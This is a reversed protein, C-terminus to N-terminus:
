IECYKYLVAAEREFKMALRDFHEDNMFSGCKPSILKNISSSLGYCFQFEEDEVWVTVSYPPVPFRSQKQTETTVYVFTISVLEDGTLSECLKSYGRERMKNVIKAVNDDVAPVTSSSKASLNKYWEIEDEEFDGAGIFISKGDPTSITMEADIWDEEDGQECREFTCSLNSMDTAAFEDGDWHWWAFAFANKNSRFLNIIEYPAMCSAEFELRNDNIEGNYFIYEWSEVTSVIEMLEEVTIGYVACHSYGKNYCDMEEFFKM